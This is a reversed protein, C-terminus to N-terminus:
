NRDAVKGGVRQLMREIGELLIGLLGDMQIVVDKGTGGRPGALASDSLEGDELGQMFAFPGEDRGGDFGQRILLEAVQFALERLCCDADHRAVDLVPGVGLDEDHGGLNKAIQEVLGSRLCLRETERGGQGELVKSQHDEVFTVINVVRIAAFDPFLTEDKERGGYLNDPERGRDSVRRGKGLPESGQLVDRQMENLRIMTDHRESM